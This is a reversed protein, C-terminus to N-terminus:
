GTFPIMPPLPNIDFAIRLLWLLSFPGILWLTAALFLLWWPARLVNRSRCLLRAAGVVGSGVLWLFLLAGAANYGFASLLDGRASYVWSRTMGCQPCPIGLLTVMGCEDGFPVGLVWMQENPGPYFPWGAGLTLLGVALLLSPWAWWPAVSNTRNPIM